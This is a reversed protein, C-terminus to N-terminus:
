KNEKDERNNQLFIVFPTMLIIKFDLFLSYNNIYILDWKLKDLPSTQYNGQVQAYGTLGAKVKMRYSFEPVQKVIERILEPREPRPGVLSMDGKLINILQPLEDIKSNRLYRGIKTIRVDNNEALRAGDPESNQVMSRFKYIWFERGDRTCRLQKYIVPGHDEAKIGIAAALFLPSLLVLAIASCVIDFGRKV